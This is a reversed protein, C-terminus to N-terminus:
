KINLEIKRNNIKQKLDEITKSINNNVMDNSYRITTIGRFELYKDRAHDYNQKNRHSGGDIEVALAL